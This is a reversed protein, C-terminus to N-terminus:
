VRQILFNELIMFDLDCDIFDVICDEVTRVITRGHLNFSTDIIVGYGTIKKVERIIQYYDKNDEISVFQPRATKDIHMASPIHKVHRDKVKFAFTMHKNNYSVEFIDERDESLISPCFPQFPPRKKVTSNIKDRADESPFAIISRAGLARPGYEMCGLVVAGIEGSVLRQAVHEHWNSPLELRRVKKNYKEIIKELNDLDVRPGYYPMGNKYGGIWSLDQKNEIAELFCAGQATGNDGM